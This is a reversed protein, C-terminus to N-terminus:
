SRSLLDSDGAPRGSGLRRWKGEAGTLGKRAGPGQETVSLIGLDCSASGPFWATVMEEDMLLPELSKAVTVGSCLIFAHCLGQM